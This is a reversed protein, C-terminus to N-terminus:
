QLRAYEAKAQKLIPIDPDADKWLALFDQYAIRAKALSDPDQAAAKTPRLPAGQHAKPPALGAGVGAELAYARGLGLHALAGIPENMVVGPHNLIKQFEAAAATGQRAALYAQGRLYVPYLAVSSGLEYPAAATLADIAKNAEKSTKRNGLISAARIMPLDVCEVFTGKPFRESLHDALRMAQASDGALALAIASDREVDRGGSLALAARAQQTALGTNGALAERRAAEAEYTAAREAEDAHQASDAARRTLARAKVFQGAYAATESEFNFMRDEYGPKVMLGAALRQMGAADHQLFDVLYLVYHILPSDLNRAQAKQAVVKAEDLRNLWLYAVALNAYCSGSDPQLRLAEQQAALAKEYEGLVSSYIHSLNNFPIYDGPYTQTWLEYTRQAAVADGTVNDEYHASINLRERDSVRSRLEYAKRTTEAARAIEGLTAYSTGQSLWAMAFNPDLSVSRQFFPIAAAFDGKVIQARHGLSYAQLAELSPTTVDELPVDYKEVSALSEGLKRRMETAAQGLAKLVQEKGNATEQEAALLDGSQCNVAQLGLVYQSGLSAISGQIAAASATRQCVERALDHTLRADRAQGMLALTQAIRADSILSLFPSQELQASLGQRLAFDFVPDSTTNTFDALVITDQDTLKLTPRSRIHYYVGAIGLVVVGVLALAWRRGVTVRGTARADQGHQSSEKGSGSATAGVAPVATGRSPMEVVGPAIPAARVVELHRALPSGSAAPLDARASELSPVPGIQSDLPQIEDATPRAEPSPSQAAARFPEESVETVQAVFRYGRKPVTEIYEQGDAAEDM